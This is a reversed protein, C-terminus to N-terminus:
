KFNEWSKILKSLSACLHDFEKDLDFQTENSIYNCDRSIELWGRTEEASGLADILHRIYVQKYKRKAFGERINMPVSRSSRRIQDILSYMEERPLMKTIEFIKTALEYSTNYVSLDKISEIKM